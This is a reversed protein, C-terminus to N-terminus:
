QPECDIEHKLLEVAEKDTCWRTRYVGLVVEFWVSHINPKATTLAYYTTEEGGERPVVTKEIIYSMEVGSLNKM